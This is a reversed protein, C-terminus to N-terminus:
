EDVRQVEIKRRLGLPFLGAMVLLLIGVLIQYKLLVTGFLFFFFGVVLQLKMLAFTRSSIWQDVRKIKRYIRIIGVLIALIFLLLIGYVIAPLSGGPVTEIGDVPQRTINYLVAAEGIYPTQTISSIVRPLLLTGDPLPWSFVIAEATLPYAHDFRGNARAAGISFATTATGFGAIVPGADVDLSWDKGRRDKPFERFGWFGWRQQWFNEEFKHYWAKSVERWILPAWVTAWQSTSGRADGLWFGRSDTMYPPLGTFDVFRGEFGRLGADSFTQHDTGLLEDARRITAIAAIVDSPFCQGPYDDLLGFSSNQIENSLTEVQDKLLPQCQEDGLLKEYCIMANMYLMRYFINQQHLYDEGWYLKVWTAHGPDLILDKAAIIADQAYQNPANRLQIEGADCAKQLEETSWLYFASGFVPWETGPIDQVKLQTAKGSDIRERAWREYRPSLTRHLRLSLKPIGGQQIAPDSIYYIMLFLPLVFFYVLLFVAIGVNGYYCIKM